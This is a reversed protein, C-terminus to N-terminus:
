QNSRLLTFLHEATTPGSFAIGMRLQPFAKVRVSAPYCKMLYMASMMTGRRVWDSASSSCFMFDALNAPYAGTARVALM